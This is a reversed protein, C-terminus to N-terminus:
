SATGPKFTGELHWYGSFDNFPGGVIQSVWTLVYHGTKANYTGRVARTLGPRNGAPKPSGQNFYISNWSATFGRLDGTLKRGAASVTPVGVARGSQADAAATSLSFKIGAFSTPPIIRNAVAFGNSAFAPSPPEQFVGTRLGGDIGAKLLTYTKDKARSDSNKFFPGKKVSGKPYIMRFYTGGSTVVRKGNKKVVKYRGPAFGFTGKLPTAALAAPPAALAAALVLATLSLRTM